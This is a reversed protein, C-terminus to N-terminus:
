QLVVLRIQAAARGKEAHTETDYGTFTATAPYTGPELTRDLQISQIHSGPAIAGSEYVTEGTDDLTIAVRQDFRNAEANEIRADGFGSGEEFTITAAISINMMGEDVQRNLDAIIEEETKGAYSGSKASDDFWSSSDMRALNTAVVATIAIAAIFLIAIILFRKKRQGNSEPTQSAQDVM